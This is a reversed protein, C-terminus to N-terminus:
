LAKTRGLLAEAIAFDHPTTIKFNFPDGDAIGVAVGIQEMLVAEDTLIQRLTPALAFGKLLTQRHFLQPTGVRVLTTRDVTTGAIDGCFHRVTDAIPTATVVAFFREAKVLIADIVSPTVFPRAADHVLVWDASDPATKVGNRVSNWREKGGTAIATPTSCHASLVAAESRSSEPVVLVISHVHPHKDFVHLSYSIIPKGALAVFGKPKDAGLRTGKGGAVIVAALSTVPPISM